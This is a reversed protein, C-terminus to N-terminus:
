KKDDMLNLESMYASKTALKEDAEKQFKTVATVAKKIPMLTGAGGICGGPCAMGELLYGDRKGAQALKLMKQCEKLGEARDIKVDVDPYLDNVANCIADAM